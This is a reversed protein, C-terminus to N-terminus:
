CCVPLQNRLRASLQRAYVRWDGRGDSVVELRRLNSVDAALILDCLDFLMLEGSTRKGDELGGDSRACLNQDRAAVVSFQEGANLCEVAM